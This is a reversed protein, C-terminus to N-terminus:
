LNVPNGRNQQSFFTMTVECGEGSVLYTSGKLIAKNIFYLSNRCINSKGQGKLRRVPAV